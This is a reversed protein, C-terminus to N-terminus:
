VADATLVPRLLREVRARAQRWAFPLPALLALGGAVLGITTLSAVAAM